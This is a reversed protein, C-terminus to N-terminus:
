PCESTRTPVRHCLADELSSQLAALRASIPIFKCVKCARSGLWIALVTVIVCMGVSALWCCQALSIPHLCFLSLHQPAPMAGRMRRQITVRDRQVVHSQVEEFIWQFLQEQQHGKNLRPSTNWEQIPHPQPEKHQGWLTRM